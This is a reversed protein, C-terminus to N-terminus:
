FMWLFHSFRVSSMTTTTCLPLSAICTRVQLDDVWFFRAFSNNGEGKQAYIPRRGRAYHLPSERGM